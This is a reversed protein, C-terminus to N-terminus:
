EDIFRKRNLSRLRQYIGFVIFLGFAVGVGKLASNIVMDNSIQAPNPAGPTSTAPPTIATPIATATPIPTDTATPPITETPAIPTDTEIASYNRVRVNTINNETMNGNQQYLVIRIQYEGDSIQSTDWDAFVGGIIAEESQTILFWTNQPNDQYSFEVSYYAYDEVSIQGTIQIMGQIASGTKPHTIEIISATSTPSQTQAKVRQFDGHSASLLIILILYLTNKRILRM